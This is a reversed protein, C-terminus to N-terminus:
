HLLDIRDGDEDPVDEDRLRKRRGVVGPRGGVPVPLGFFMDAPDGAGDSLGGSARICRAIPCFFAAILHPAFANGTLRFGMSKGALSAYSGPFGQVEFREAPTLPRFWKRRRTDPEAVDQVSLLFIDPGKCTLPPCVDYSV